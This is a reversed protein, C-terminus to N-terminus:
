RPGVNLPSTAPAAGYTLSRPSTATLGDEDAADSATGPSPM